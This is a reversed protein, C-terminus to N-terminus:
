YLTRTCYCLSQIILHVTYQGNSNLFITYYLVSAIKINETASSILLGKRYSLGTLRNWLFSYGVARKESKRRVCKSKRGIGRM